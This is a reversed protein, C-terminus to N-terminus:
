IMIIILFKKKIGFIIMKYLRFSVKSEAKSLNFEIVEEPTYCLNNM